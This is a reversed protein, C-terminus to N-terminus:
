NARRKICDSLLRGYLIKILRGPSLVTLSLRPGVPQIDQLFGKVIGKLRIRCCFAVSLEKEIELTGDGSVNVGALIYFCSGQLEQDGTPLALPREVLICMPTNLRDNRLPCELVCHYTTDDVVLLYVDSIVGLGTIVGSLIEFEHHLRREEVWLRIDQRVHLKPGKKLVRSSVESPLFQNTPPEDDSLCSGSEFLLASPLSKFRLILDRFKEKASAQPSAIDIKLGLINALIYHLDETKTTSRGALLNWILIFRGADLEQYLFISDPQPGCHMIAFLKSRLIKEARWTEAKEQNIPPNDGQVERSTKIKGDAQEQMVKVPEDGSSGGEFAILRDSLQFVWNEALAAEHLTWSRANWTCCYIQAFVEAGIQRPSWSMLGADLVYIANSRAYISAM